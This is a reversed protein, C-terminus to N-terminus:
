VLKYYRIYESEIIEGNKQMSEIEKYFHVLYDGVELTYKSRIPFLYCRGERCIPLYTLLDVVDKTIVTQVEPFIYSGRYLEKKWNDLNVEEVM